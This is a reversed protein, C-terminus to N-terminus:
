AVVVSHLSEMQIRVSEKSLHATERLMENVETCKALLKEQLM